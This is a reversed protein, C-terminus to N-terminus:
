KEGGAATLKTVFLDNYKAKTAKFPNKVPFDPSNTFGTIYINGVDDVAIGRGQDFGSGGLYTATELNSGSASLKAFFADCQGSLAAQIANKVPSDSSWTFGTVYVCGTKDVAIARSAEVAVGFYTSYCLRNGAPSFKSIFVVEDIYHVPAEQIPNKLPFDSSGTVGTLYVSGREDIAIDECSDNGSGGLYTAYILTDGTTSLKVVFADSGEFDSGGRFIWQLPSKIPFNVSGTNGAAYACGSGDVAIGKGIDTGDGGIFTAYRLSTGAPSLKAVFADSFGGGYGGQLPNKTPFDPSDSCGTVYACGNRDVAIGQGVDYTTGGLFTSYLLTCGDASLKSVFVDRDGAFTPRVPKKVPFNKSKTGGTIYACGRDDVAISHGEDSNDGGLYTSYVVGSGDASLKTVFVDSENKWSKGGAYNKQFPNTVPFDLSTTYGTIYANGKGDVAIDRCVDDGSGGLYTSFGLQVLPDIILEYRSDYEGVDFGYTNKGLKKFRVDVPNRGEKEPVARQEGVSKSVGKNGKQRSAENGGAKSEQYSVPRKHILEGFGTKVVINGEPDIRTSKVDRYTFTIDEPDGGPKVIWDYEVQKIKGYVKLDINRYIDRYLVAKATSINLKWTSM